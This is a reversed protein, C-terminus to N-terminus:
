WHHFQNFLPADFSHQSLCRLCEFGQFV